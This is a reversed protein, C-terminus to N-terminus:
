AGLDREADAQDQDHQQKGAHAGIDVDFGAPYVFVDFFVGGM